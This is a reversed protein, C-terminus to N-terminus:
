YLEPLHELIGSQLVFDSLVQQNLPKLKVQSLARYEMKVCELMQADDSFVLLPLHPLDQELWNLMEKVNLGPVRWEMILLDYSVRQLLGEAEDATSVGDVEFGWNELVWEIQIRHALHDDVVLAKKM